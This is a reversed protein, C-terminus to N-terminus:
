DDHDKQRGHESNHGHEDRQNQAAQYLLHSLEHMLFVFRIGSSRGPKMQYTNLSGIIAAIATADAMMIITMMEVQNLKLDGVSSSYFVM